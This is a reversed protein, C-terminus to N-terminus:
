GKTDLRVELGGFGGPVEYGNFQEIAKAATSADAFRVVGWGRSVGDPGLKVDAFEPVLEGFLDKLNSWTYDPPLNRVFISTNPV